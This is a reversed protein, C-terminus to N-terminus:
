LSLESTQTFQVVHPQSARILNCMSAIVCVSSWMGLSAGDM